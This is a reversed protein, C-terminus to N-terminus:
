AAKQEAQRGAQIAAFADRLIEAEGMNRLFFNMDGGDSDVEVTAFGKRDETPPFPTARVTFSGKMHASIYLKNIM